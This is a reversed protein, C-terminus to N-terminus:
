DMGNSPAADGLFFLALFLWSNKGAERDAQQFALLALAAYATFALEIFATGSEIQVIYQTYFVLAALGAWRRWGAQCCAAFAAGAAMLGFSFHLLKAGVGYPFLLGLLYLM